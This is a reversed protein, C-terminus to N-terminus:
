AVEWTLPERDAEGVRSLGELTEQVVRFMGVLREVETVVGTTRCVVVGTDEGYRRRVKRAPRKVELRLSEVGLIAHTLGSSFLSPLRGAPKGRVVYKDNLQRPLPPRSGFGLAELLRDGWNRRRVTVTLERRGRHYARVRTYTVAANGTNVVYTGLDIRWPGHQLLVLDDGTRKGPVYAGGVRVAAERWAGERAERKAAAAEKIRRLARM